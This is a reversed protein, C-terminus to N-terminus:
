KRWESRIIDKRGWALKMYESEQDHLVETSNTICMRPAERGGAHVDSNLRLKQMILFALLCLQRRSWFINFSGLQSFLVASFLCNSLLVNLCPECPNESFNKYYLTYM